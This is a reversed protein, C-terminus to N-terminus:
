VRELYSEIGNELARLNKPIAHECVLVTAFPKCERESFDRLTSSAFVGLVRFIIQFCVVDRKLYKKM